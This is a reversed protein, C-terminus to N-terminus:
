EDEAMHALDRRLTRWVKRGHILPQVVNIVVMIGTFAYASWVYFGFGGMSLFQSFTM